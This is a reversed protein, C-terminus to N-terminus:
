SRESGSPRAMIESMRESCEIRSDPDVAQARELRDRAQQRSEDTPEYGAELLVAWFEDPKEM